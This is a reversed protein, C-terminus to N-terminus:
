LKPIFTKSDFEQKHFKLYKRVKENSININKVGDFLNFYDIYNKYQNLVHLIGSYDFTILFKDFLADHNPCLLFGNSIDAIETIKGLRDLNNDNIIKNVPKIHSAILLESINIKCQIIECKIGRSSILSERFLRRFKKYKKTNEDTLDDLSVKKLESNIMEIYEKKLIEDFFWKIKKWYVLYVNEKPNKKYIKNDIVNLIDELTVWRSSANKTNKEIVKSSYIKKPDVILYVRKDFDLEKNNKLPIYINIVLVREYDSIIKQFASQHFPIAIKKDSKNYTIDRGGGDPFEIFVKYYVDKYYIKFLNSKGESIDEFNEIELDKCLYEIFIKKNKSNDLPHAETLEAIEGLVIHKYKYPYEKKM